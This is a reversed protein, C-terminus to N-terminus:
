AALLRWTAVVGLTVIIARLAVAPLRRGVSAGLFGGCLTGAAILGAAAWSISHFAVITYVTAAVVNVGLSLVNKLANVRQLSEPLLAGLIGVLLVGQAAAFYGGYVGVLYTAAVVAVTRGRSLRGGEQEIQPARRRLWRQVYPQAIVLIIALILLVPVISEFTSAPLHLLLFAGTVAGLVSAPLQQRIRHAQGQLERRYGWSGSLGGPVQGVANSMTAVVPPFGFAILVPFTVLTGSGVITNIGGAWLGALFIVFVEIGTV